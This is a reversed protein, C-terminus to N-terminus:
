GSAGGWYYNGHQWATSHDHNVMVNWQWNEQQQCWGTM